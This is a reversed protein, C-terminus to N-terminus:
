EGRRLAPVVPEIPPLAGDPADKVGYHGPRGGALLVALAVKGTNTDIADVSSLGARRFVDVASIPASTAEVGVARDSVTLGEYFGALFRATARQQPPTSRAVVVGDVADEGGGSREELLARSLATWLPTEGGRVVERALARGLDPMRARGRYQGLAPRSALLTELEEERLPIKLARLRVIQGGADEIAQEVAIDLGPDVTGVFVLAFRKGALRDHMVAEYAAETFSLAADQTRSRVEAEDLRQELEGIRRNLNRRESDQVFGRGSIGVGILIGFLLALFVAALSVVHYRLDFM